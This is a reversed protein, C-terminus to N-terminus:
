DLLIEFDFEKDTRLEYQPLTAPGCSGSGLGHHVWDLHIITDDRKHPWLEYPHKAADLDEATYHLAQFSAGDLDGFRARLLRTTDIVCDPGVEPPTGQFEVWRVDTRNGGDQPYEYDVFLQDVTGSWNGMRQSLKKDCYSEGPGRGFWRVNNVGALGIKLGFRSFTGPLLEGQPKAKVKISVDKGSFRYTTQTDVSWNLVPAAIRSTVVVEVLGSDTEEWTAQLIHTKIQHLRRARWEQGFRGGADNDTVARYLAFTLPETIINKPYGPRIWSTITGLTLDFVWASGTHGSITLHCPSTLNVLPRIDQPVAVPRWRVLSAPGVLQLQGFAVEHGAFAWNSNEKLCFSLLLYSEGAIDKPLKGVTLTAKAHPKIGVM